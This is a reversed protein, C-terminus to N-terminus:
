AALPPKKPEALQVNVDQAAVAKPTADDSDSGGEQHQSASSQHLTAKVEPVDDSLQSSSPAWTATGTPVYKYKGFTCVSLLDV